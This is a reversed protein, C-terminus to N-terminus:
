VSTLMVQFKWSQNPARKVLSCRPHGVERRAYENRTASVKGSFGSGAGCMRLHCKHCMDNSETNHNLEDEPIESAMKLHHVRTM